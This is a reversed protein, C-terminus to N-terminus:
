QEEIGQQSRHASQDARTVYDIFEPDITDLQDAPVDYAAAISPDISM